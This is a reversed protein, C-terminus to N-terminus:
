DENELKFIRAEHDHAIAMAYRGMGRVMKETKTQEEALQALAASLKVMNEEVAAMREEITM